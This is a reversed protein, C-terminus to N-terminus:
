KDVGLRPRPRIRRGTTNSRTSTRRNSADVRHHKSKGVNTRGRRMDHKKDDDKGGGSNM